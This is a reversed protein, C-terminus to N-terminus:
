AAPITLTGSSEAAPSECPPQGGHHPGVPYQFAPFRGLSGKVDDSAQYRGPDRTRYPNINVLVIAPSNKRAAPRRGAARETDPRRTAPIKRPVIADALIIRDGHKSSPTLAIVL